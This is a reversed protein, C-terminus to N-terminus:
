RFLYGRMYRETWEPGFSRNMLKLGPSNIRHHHKYGQINKQHHDILEPALPQPDALLELVESWVQLHAQGLQALQDLDSPRVFFDEGSRCEQYWGPPDDGQVLQPFRAHARRLAATVPVSCGLGPLLTCADIVGVIPRPGLVVFEMAFVPLQWRPAPFFFLTIIDIKPSRICVGRLEGLVSNGSDPPQALEVFRSALVLRGTKEAREAHGFEAPLAIERRDLRGARDVSRALLEAFNTTM